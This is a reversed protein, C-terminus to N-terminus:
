FILSVVSKVQLCPYKLHPMGQNSHYCIASPVCRATYMKLYNVLQQLFTGKSLSIGQSQIMAKWSENRSVATQELKLKKFLQSTSVPINAAERRPQLPVPRERRGGRQRFVLLRLASCVAPSCNRAPHGGPREARLMGKGMSEGSRPLPRSSFPHSPTTPSASKPISAPLSPKIELGLSSLTHLFAKPINQMHVWLKLHPM